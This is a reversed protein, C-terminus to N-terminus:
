LTVCPRMVRGTKVDYFKLQKGGLEAIDFVQEIKARTIKIGNHPNGLIRFAQRFQYSNPFQVFTVWVNKRRSLRTVKLIM